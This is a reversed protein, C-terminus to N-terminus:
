VHSSMHMLLLVINSKLGHVAMGLTDWNLSLISNVLCAHRCAPTCAIWTEPNVPTFCHSMHTLSRTAKMIINEIVLQTHSAKSALSVPVPISHCPSNMQSHRPPRAAQWPPSPNNGQCTSHQQARAKPEHFTATRICIVTDNQLPLRVPQRTDKNQTGAPAGTKTRSKM